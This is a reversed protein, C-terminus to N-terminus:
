PEREIAHAWDAVLAAFGERGLSERLQRRLDVLEHGQRVNAKGTEAAIRVIGSLQDHRHLAGLTVHSDMALTVARRCHQCEMVLMSRLRPGGDGFLPTEIEEILEVEITRRTRQPPVHFDDRTFFPMM